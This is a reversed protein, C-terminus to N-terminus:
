AKKEEPKAEVPKEEPKPLKGEKKMRMLLLVVVVIVVIVVIPVIYIVMATLDASSGAVNITITGLDNNPNSDGVTTAKV